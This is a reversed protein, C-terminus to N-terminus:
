KRFLKLILTLGHNLLFGVGLLGIFNWETGFIAKLGFGYLASASLVNFLKYGENVFFQKYTLLNQGQQIQPKQIIPKPMPPKPIPEGNKVANLREQFSNHELM